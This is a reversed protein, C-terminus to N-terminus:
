SRRAPTRRCRRRSAPSRAPPRCPDRWARRRGRPPASSRPPASRQRMSPRTFDARRCRVATAAGGVRRPAAVLPLAPLRLAEGALLMAVLPLAPLRLAEGALLAAVLPLAPLRLAEGALLVAVLPLPRRAFATRSAPSPPVIPSSRRAAPQDLCRADIRRKSGTMTSRDACAVRQLQDGGDGREALRCRGVAAATPLLELALLELALRELALLELALLELALLELALLELACWTPIARESV